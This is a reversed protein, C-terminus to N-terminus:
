DSGADTATSADNPAADATADPAADSTPFIAADSPADPGTDPPGAEGAMLNGVPGSSCASYAVAAVGVSAVLLKRATRKRDRM